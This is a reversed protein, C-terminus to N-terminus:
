KGPVEEHQTLYADFARLRRVSESLGIVFIVGALGPGNGSGLLAMRVPRALQPFKLNLGTVLERVLSTITDHDWQKLEELGTVIAQMVRVASDRDISGADSYQEPGDHMLKVVAALEGLTAVRGQYLGIACAVQEDSWRHMSSRLEPDVDQTIYTLLQAASAERIYVGNLWNLKEGDFIAAKKGVDELAFRAVLEDRSFIEQDGSSWGLRALYNLLADALYGKHRYEDTGTAADRKSLRNGSTGLILPLHAFQPLDYGCARYILMQKPTNSLHDEGRIVHTIGMTADDVVVALNYTPSGDSRAIVFDSFMSSEFKVTGRIIDDVTFDNSLEPIAFRVVFPGSGEARTRCFGDYGAHENKDSVRAAVEEPSCYCRYAHGDACLKEIVKKHREVHNTQHVVPEDATMGMWALSSLISETYEQKSRELDTDEVRVLFAGGMHRAYLWNFLATRLSGIHLHGTPSPAFRVRISKLNM